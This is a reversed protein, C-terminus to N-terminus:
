HERARRRQMDSDQEGPGLELPVEELFGKSCARARDEPSATGVRVRWAERSRCNNAARTRKM